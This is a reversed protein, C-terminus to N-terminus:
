KGLGAPHLVIRSLDPGRLQVRGLFGEGLGAEGGRVDGGDPDGILAFGGDHPVALRALRYMVSDHPLIAAGGGAAVLQFGANKGANPGDLSTSPGGGRDPPPPETGIAPM